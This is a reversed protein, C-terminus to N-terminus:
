LVALREVTRWNRGTIQVKLKKEIFGKGLLSNAVGLKLHCYIERGLIAFREDNTQNALLEQQKDAPMEEKLFLVHMEKHSEFQGAFPNSELITQIQRQERVMVPISRGLTNQIAAEIQNSLAIELTEGESAHPSIVYDFALNGSNIYSAVNDFHLAEFMARLEEMKIMTNGGVNIGRLLAIHRM